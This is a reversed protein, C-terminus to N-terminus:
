SKPRVPSHKEGRTTGPNRGPPRSVKQAVLFYAFLRGQDSARRKAAPARRQEPRSPGRLVGKAVSRDFLQASDTTSTRKACARLGKRQEAESLPPHPFVGRAFAPTSPGQSNATPQKQPEGKSSGLLASARPAHAARKLSQSRAGQKLLAYRRSNPGAGPKSCRLSARLASPVPTAKQKSKTSVFLSDGAPAFERSPRPLCVGRTFGGARGFERCPGACSGLAAFAAVASV